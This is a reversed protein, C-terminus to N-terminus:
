VPLKSRSVWVSHQQKETFSLEAVVRPSLAVIEGTALTSAVIENRLHSTTRIAATTFHPCFLLVPFNGKREKSQLIATVKGTLDAKQSCLKGVSFGILYIPFPVDNQM